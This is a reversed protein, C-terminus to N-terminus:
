GVGRAVPEVLTAAVDKLLGAEDALWWLFAHPRVQWGGPNAVAEKVFGQKVLARLEPGFDRRLQDLPVRQFAFAAEGLLSSAPEWSLHPRMRSGVAVVESIRGCRELYAVLERAKAAKGEGRLTDYDVALDFCLTRFEEADFYGTLLQRLRTLHRRKAMREQESLGDPHVDAKADTGQRVLANIHALAITLFVQCMAPPWLSWTNYLVQEAKDLLRQWAQQRRLYPDAEDDEEYADWLEYAAVQLLYAHGGAVEEIFRRDESTFRDGARDLLGAIADDSFPGLTIEDLFNFYPSGTRSFQRTAENLATLSRRSAIVLALAGRSRSALSRLGGFFEASNFVPHHLLVDFEDLSLVLRWGEAGVQALLRELVFCGFGNERCLGYAQALPSDPSHAVVREQLPHLAYEWFRAQSFRGGLAQADLYSFVLREGAAGYFEAQAEASDLYLLLSTKGSCPEGVIASSQGRNVIRNTIRRLERRRDVFLDTPVPDGYYFPNPM